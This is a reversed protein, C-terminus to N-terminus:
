LAVSLRWSLPPFNASFTHASTPPPPLTPLTKTPNPTLFEPDRSSDKKGAVTNLLNFVSRSNSRPSLNNCTAQWIEAKASSIVSSARRRPSSGQLLAGRFTGEAESCWHRAAEVHHYMRRGELSLHGLIAFCSGRPARSDPGGLRWAQLNAQGQTLCKM